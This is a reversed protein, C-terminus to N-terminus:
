AGRKARALVAELKAQAKMRIQLLYNLQAYEKVLEDPPKEGKLDYDDLLMALHQMRAKEKPDM